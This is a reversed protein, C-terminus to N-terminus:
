WACREVVCSIGKRRSEGQDAQTYSGARSLYTDATLTEKHAAQADAPAPGTALDAAEVQVIAPGQGAQAAGANPKSQGHAGPQEVLASNGDPAALHRVLLNLWRFHHHSSVTSM